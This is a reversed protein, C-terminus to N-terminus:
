SNGGSIVAYDFFLPRQKSDMTTLAITHNQTELLGDRLYLLTQPHQYTEDLDIDLGTFMEPALDDVVVM